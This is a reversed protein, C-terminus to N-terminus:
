RGRVGTGRASYCGEPTEAAPTQAVAEPTQTVAEFTQAPAQPVSAPTQTVAEAPTNTAAKGAPRAKRDDPRVESPSIEPAGSGAAGAVAGTPDGGDASANQSTWLVMVSCLLALVLLRM